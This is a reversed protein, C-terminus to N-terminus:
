ASPQGAMQQKMARNSAAEAEMQQDTMIRRQPKDSIAPISSGMDGQSTQMTITPMEPTNVMPVAKPNGTEAQLMNDLDQLPYNSNKLNGM